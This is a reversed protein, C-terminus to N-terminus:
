KAYKEVYNAVINKIQKRKSDGACFRKIEDKTTPYGRRNPFSASLVDDVSRKCIAKFAERTLRNEKWPERLYHKILEALKM